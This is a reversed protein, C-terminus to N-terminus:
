CSSDINLSRIVFIFFEPIQSPLGNESLFNAFNNLCSKLLKTCSYCNLTVCSLSAVHKSLILSDLFTAEFLKFLKFKCYFIIFSYSKGSAYSKPTSVLYTISDALSICTCSFFRFLFKHHQKNAQPLEHKVITTTMTPRMKPCKHNGFSLTCM